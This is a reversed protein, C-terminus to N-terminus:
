RRLGRGTWNVRKGTLPRAPFILSPLVAAHFILVGSEQSVLKRVTSIGVGLIGGVEQPTLYVEDLITAKVAERNRIAREQQERRKQLVERLWSQRSERQLSQCQDPTLRAGEGKNATAAGSSKAVFGLPPTTGNMAADSDAPPTSAPGAANQCIRQYEAELAQVIEANPRRFEGRLTRSITALSKKIGRAALNKQVETAFGYNRKLFAVRVGPMLSQFTTNGM